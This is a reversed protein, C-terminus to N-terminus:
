KGIYARAITARSHGLENAIVNCANDYEKQENPNMEDYRLGGAAPCARGTLEYYREHAYNHRLAHPHINPNKDWQKAKDAAYNIKREFQEVRYDINIGRLDKAVQKLAAGNDRLPLEGNPRGNFTIEGRQRGNKCWSGKMMLVNDKGIATVAHGLTLEYAVHASEERRLGYAAELRLAAAVEPHKGSQMKKLSNESIVAAFSKNEINLVNRGPVGIESNKALAIVTNGAEKAIQKVATVKNEITGPKDDKNFLYSVLQKFDELTLQKVLKTKVGASKFEKGILVAEKRINYKTKEALQKMPNDLRTSVLGAYFRMNHKLGMKEEGQRPKRRKFNFQKIIFPRIGKFYITVDIVVCHGVM